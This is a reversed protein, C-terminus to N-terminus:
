IRMPMIVCVHADDGAGRFVGPSLPDKLEVAVEVAEMPTLADLVYRANFGIVLEEGAFEAALVEEGEGLEQSSASLRLTGPALTLRVPRTRDDAVVSVRRLAAVLPERAVVLRRPHGKPLVQEYNPFQGEILKSVLDFGPTRLFFQHGGVALAV